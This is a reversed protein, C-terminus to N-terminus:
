SAEGDDLGEFRIGGDAPYPQTHDNEGNWIPLPIGGPFAACVGPPNAWDSKGVDLHKCDACVPPVTRLSQDCLVVESM